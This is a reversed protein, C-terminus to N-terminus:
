SSSGHILKGIYKRKLTEPDRGVYIRVRRNRSGWRIIQGTKRAMSEGFLLLPVCRCVYGSSLTPKIPSDLIALHRPNM